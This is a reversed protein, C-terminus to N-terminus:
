DRKRVAEKVTGYSRIHQWSKYEPSDPDKALSRKEALYKKRIGKQKYLRRDLGIPCVKTCVGCPYCRRATLEEAKDLCAAKDFDGMVRDGRMAICSNPCCDACVGCKICLEKQLMADGPIGVETFVSVLRVRPGFERTLLCHSAGITGLGAYKAAMVHSFAGFNKERLAKLTGYGDRTFFFSAHGLRNLRRMLNVALADLERNVTKYLEMHLPSPTTEVVPLPMGIGLVIVTKAPAWLARPRFDLPVENYEEWRDVPAFGILDAGQERCYNIIYDKLEQGQLINGKKINIAPDGEHNRV